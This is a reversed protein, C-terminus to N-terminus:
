FRIKGSAKRFGKSDFSCLLGSGYFFKKVSLLMFPTMCVSEFVIPLMVIVSMGLFFM